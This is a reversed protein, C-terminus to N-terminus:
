EYVTSNYIIFALLFVVSYVSTFEEGGERAIKGCGHCYIIVNIM